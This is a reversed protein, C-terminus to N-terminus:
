IRALPSQEAGRDAPAVIRSPAFLCRAGWARLFKYRTWRRSAKRWAVLKKDSLASRAPSARHSAAGGGRGRNVRNVMDILFKRSIAQDRFPLGDAVAPRLAEPGSGDPYRPQRFTSCSATQDGPSGIPDRYGAASRDPATGSSGLFELYVYPKRAELTM